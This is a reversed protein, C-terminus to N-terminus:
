TRSGTLSLYIKKLLRMSDFWQIKLHNREENNFIKFFQISLPHKKMNNILIQNDIQFPTEQDDPNEESSSNSISIMGVHPSFDFATPSYAETHDYNEDNHTTSQPYYVHSPHLPVM